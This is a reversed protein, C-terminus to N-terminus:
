GGLKFLSDFKTLLVFNGRVKLGGIMFAKQATNTGKLVERWTSADSIITIEPNEAFGDRYECENSIISLYGDFGEDGTISIQIVANLGASIQPQYYHPLNQTLQKITKFKPEPAPLIAKPQTYQPAQYPAQNTPYQPMQYNTPANKQSFLATLEQIDKEQQETFSELNLKSTPNTPQSPAPSPQSYAPTSAPQNPKQTPQSPQIPQVYVPSQMPQVLQNPQAYVPNQAPQNPQNYVPLNPQEYYAPQAPPMPNYIAVNEQVPASIDTPVIYRRNQRVARYFDEATKEIIDTISGTEANEQMTRISNETLGLRGSEFGGYNAIVRSLCELASREGGNQSAAVLLCHKEYLLKKYDNCEFFELFIQMIASPSFLQTTTAFMIGNARNIRNAIDDMVKTRMGDFYPLQAFGLNIEELGVELEALTAALTSIIKSLGYDFHPLSANIILINM